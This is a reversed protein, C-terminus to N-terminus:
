KQFLKNNVIYARGEKSVTLDSYDTEPGFDTNILNLDVLVELDHIIHVQDQHPELGKIVDSVKLAAKSTAIARFIVEQSKTLIIDFQKKPTKSPRLKKKPPTAPEKAPSSAPRKLLDNEAILDKIRQDKRFTKEDFDEQMAYNDLRIQRSEKETLPIEDEIERRDLILKNQWKKSFIYAYRAPFPYLYIYAISTLLPFLLGQGFIQYKETFLVTDILRFKTQIPEGSFILLVFRYNWIVWSAIFSGSLPSVVKENVNKRISKLTDTLM